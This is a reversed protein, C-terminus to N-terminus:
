GPPPTRFPSVVQLGFVDQGHQLDETLLAGCGSALAQAVILADWWAFGYRDEVTWAREMIEPTTEVPRWTALAALDDRVLDREAPPDLKRTMTQYFEQLVQVSTRGEGQGWLWALWAASNRQKEADSPDRLYVLVNTDVFVPGTV